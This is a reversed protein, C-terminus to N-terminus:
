SPIAYKGEDGEATRTLVVNAPEFEEGNEFKSCSSYAFLEDYNALGESLPSTSAFIRRCLRGM